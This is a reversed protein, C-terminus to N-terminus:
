ASGEHAVILGQGGAEEFREGYAGHLEGEVPEPIGM